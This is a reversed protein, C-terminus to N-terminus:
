EWKIVFATLNLIQPALKNLQTMVKDLLLFYAKSIEWTIAYRCVFRTNAFKDDASLKAYDQLKLVEVKTVINEMSDELTNTSKLIENKGHYEERGGTFNTLKM